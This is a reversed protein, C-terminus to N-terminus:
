SEDVHVHEEQLDEPVQGHVHDEHVHLHERLREGEQVYGQAHEHV